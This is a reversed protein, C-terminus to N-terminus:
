RSRYPGLTKLADAVFSDDVADEPKANGQILGQAKYVAYDDRLSALNVHGNPNDGNPTVARFLAPDKLRTNETIIKIVDDANAGALKGGALAGNYYRVARLYARMARLGVERHDRLLSKGFLVVAVQQNPYFSDDGMIKVAVGTRVALTANPEPMLAVDVAGTRLAVVQDSYGMYVLKVDAYTLGGQKFLRNLAAYATAGEGAVSITLGRLDRLTKYRGSSVLDARAILQQFGYGPTDTGLDAVIRVDIGRSVANFLGASPAGGGIDLQGAGLPAVMHAASDFPTFDATLGEDRFYGKKDAIYFLSETMSGVVGIRVVAPEDARTSVPLL